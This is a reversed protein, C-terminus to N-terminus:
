SQVEFEVALVAGDCHLLFFDLAPFAYHWGAGVGEGLGGGCGAIGRLGLVGEWCGDELGGDGGVGRGNFASFVLVVVVFGM